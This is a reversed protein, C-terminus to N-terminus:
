ENLLERYLAYMYSHVVAIGVVTLIFFVATAISTIYLSVPIMIFAAVALLVVPLFLLKRLIVWRRFQVLQRASRLAQMPRMDPLTVIYLAFLSSCIMYVSTVALALFVLITVARELLTIAIGGGVLMGYIAAGFVLPLLQIGVVFLVLVFPIIPYTGKYFADRVSIKGKAYVQRLAWVLIVSILLLLITQYAGAVATTGGSGISGVLVTFLTVGTSVKGLHGTFVQDLSSKISSLNSSGSLGGVLIMNLVLYVALIGAFLKWNDRLIKIAQALLKSASKIPPRSPKAAKTKSKKALKKGAKPIPSSVPGSVASSKPAFKGKVSKIRNNFKPM